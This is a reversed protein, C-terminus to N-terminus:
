ENSVGLAKLIAQKQDDTLNSLDLGNNSIVDKNTELGSIVGKKVGKFFPIVFWILALILCISVTGALTSEFHGVLWLWLLFYGCGRLFRMM